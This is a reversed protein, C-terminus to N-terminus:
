KEYDVPIITAHIFAYRRQAEDIAGGRERQRLKKLIAEKVWVGYVYSLTESAKRMNCKQCCGVLNELRSSGGASRPIVHDRSAFQLDQTVWVGDVKVFGAHCYFCRFGDRELCLTIQRQTKSPTGLRDVGKKRLRHVSVLGCRVCFNGYTEWDHAGPTICPEEVNLLPDAAM